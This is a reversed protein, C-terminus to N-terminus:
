YPLYHCSMTIMHCKVHQLRTPAVLMRADVCLVRNLYVMRIKEGGGMERLFFVQAYNVRVSCASTSSPSPRPVLRYSVVEFRVRTSAASSNNHQARQSFNVQAHVNEHFAHYDCSTFREFNWSFRSFDGSGRESSQSPLPRPVLSLDEGTSTRCSSTM